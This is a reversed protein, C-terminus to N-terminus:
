PYAPYKARFFMNRSWPARRDGPATFTVNFSGSDTEIPSSEIWPSQEASELYDVALINSPPGAFSHTVSTSVGDYQPTGVHVLALFGPVFVDQSQLIDTQDLRIEYIQSHTVASFEIQISDVPGINEVNWQYGVTKVYIPEEGTEPSDYTGSQYRNLLVSHSPAYTSPQGNVKLIPYGEPSKFGYGVAEGIEVQLTITKVGAVPTSDSIRLTGGLANPVQVFSGFYLSESLFIPGGGDQGGSIRVIEADGSNLDNSGATKVSEDPNLWPSSGPFSGFGPFNVSNMNVWGDFSTAGGGGFNVPVTQAHTQQGSSLFATCLPMLLWAFVPASRLLSKTM